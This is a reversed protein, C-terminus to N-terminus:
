KWGQESGYTIPLVIEVRTGQGATSKIKLTGGHIEIIRVATSLGLGDRDCKSTVFPDTVTALMDMEIGGGSDAVTIQATGRGTTPDTGSKTDVSIQDGINTAELANQFVAGFALELLFADGRVLVGKLTQSAEVNHLVVNKEFCASAALKTASDVIDGLAVAITCIPPQSFQSFSRIFEVARDITQQLADVEEANKAVRKLSGLLLNILQFHNGIKHVFQSIISANLKTAIFENAIPTLCGVIMLDCATQVKRLSHAVWIPLGQDDAISHVASVTDPSQLQDIQYRLRTCDEALIREESILRKGVINEPQIGVLELANASITKVLLDTTCEYVVCPASPWSEIVSDKTMARGREILRRQRTAVRSVMEDKGAYPGQISIRSM